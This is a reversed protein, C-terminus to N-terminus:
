IMLITITERTEYNNHETRDFERRLFTYNNQKIQYKIRCIYMCHIHPSHFFFKM